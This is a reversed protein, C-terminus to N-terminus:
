AAKDRDIPRGFQLRIRPGLAHIFRAERPHQNRRRESLARDEGTSHLVMVPFTSVRSSKPVSTGFCNM